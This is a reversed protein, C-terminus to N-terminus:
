AKRNYSKIIKNILMGIMGMGHLRSSVKELIYFLENSKFIVSGTLYVVVGTIVQLFMALIPHIPLLDLPKIVAFMILTLFLSPALDGIQEKYGYGLLKKNPFINVLNNFVSSAVASIAIALSGYKMTAIIFLIGIGKKLMEMKFFLDSRGIAKIAQINSTSIPMLGYSICALLLYPVCPLWKDTLIVRILSNGIVALGGMMPFIVYASLRMSKKALEKLQVKDGQKKSMAPFLVSAISININNVALSPFQEGKNYFALDVTSYERGIILSRIQTYATSVVDALTVKWGYAMLSKAREGSFEFFPRWPVTVFLVITDIASNTLYQFVLAWPGFGKIAMWIGVVASIVTGSITSFFFKRFIMHRSVYAHQISNVSSILIKISLVRLTPVLLDNCYFKAIPMATFFLLFYLIVSCIVSCYFMTSFDIREADKKQILASSFGQSVFVNAINIFVLLIAVVGYDDPILIRALVMSVVFSVGQACIREAFKWFLGGTISNSQEQNRRQENQKLAELLKM